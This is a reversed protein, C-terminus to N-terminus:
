FSMGGLSVPCLMPFSAVADGLLDAAVDAGDPQLRDM